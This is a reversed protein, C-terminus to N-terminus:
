SDYGSDDYEWYYNILLTRNEHNYVYEGNNYRGSKNIRDKTIEELNITNNRGEQWFKIKNKEEVVFKFEFYRIDREIKREGKWINGKNWGLFLAGNLGWNGFEPISGLVCVNEGPFTNFNVSFAISLPKEPIYPLNKVLEYLIRLKIGLDYSM